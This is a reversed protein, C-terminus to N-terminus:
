KSFLSAFADTATSVMTIEVVAAGVLAFLLGGLICRSLMPIIHNKVECKLSRNDSM